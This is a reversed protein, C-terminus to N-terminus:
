IEIVWALCFGDTVHLLQELLRVANCCLEVGGVDFRIQDQYFRGLTDESVDMVAEQYVYEHVTTVGGDLKTISVARRVQGM